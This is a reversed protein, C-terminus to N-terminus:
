SWTITITITNVPPTSVPGTVLYTVIYKSRFVSCAPNVTHRTQTNCVFLKVVYDLLTGATNEELVSLWCPIYTCLFCVFIDRFSNGIVPTWVIEVTWMTVDVFLRLLECPLMLWCDWYNVHYCWCVIEVTWMIVNVFLRLLECSLMLLCDWCNM